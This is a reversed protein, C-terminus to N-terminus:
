DQRFQNSSRGRLMVAASVNEFNVQRWGCVREFDRLERAGNAGTVVFDVSRAQPNNQQIGGRWRLGPERFRGQPADGGDRRFEYLTQLQSSTQRPRHACEERRREVLSDMGSSFPNSM